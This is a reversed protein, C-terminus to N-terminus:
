PESLTAMKVDGWRQRDALKQSVHHEVYQEAKESSIVEVRLPALQGVEVAFHYTPNTGLRDQVMQCLREALPSSKEVAKECVRLVYGPPHRQAVLQAFQPSLGLASFAIQMATQVQAANLKEGVLDSTADTKGTFRILPAEHYRGVIEVQDHMQYRYLGGQTTVVVRYQRGFELEHALVTQTSAEWAPLFEFFHSRVALAAGSQSVLPISVAAETALLGKPQLEVGDLQERLQNAYPASPGDAWCSVLSLNPWIRRVCESIGAAGAFIERLKAARNPQPAFSMDGLGEGAACDDQSTRGTEVDRCLSDRRRWLEAFM